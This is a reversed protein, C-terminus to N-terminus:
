VLATKVTYPNPDTLNCFSTNEVCLKSLMNDYNYIDSANSIFKWRQEKLRIRIRWTFFSPVSDRVLVNIILYQLFYPCFNNKLVYTLTTILGSPRLTFSLCCCFDCLREMVYFLWHMYTHDEIIKSTMSWKISFKRTWLTPM